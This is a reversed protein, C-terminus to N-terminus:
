VKGGQIDNFPKEGLIRKFMDDVNEVLYARGKKVDDIAEKYGATKTIDLEEITTEEKEKTLSNWSERHKQNKRLNSSRIYKDLEDVNTFSKSSGKKAEDVRAFFEEKSMLTPDEMNATLKRTYKLLKAMLNEDKAIISLQHFLEANM